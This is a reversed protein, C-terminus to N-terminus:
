NKPLITELRKICDDLAPLADCPQGQTIDYACANLQEWIIQLSQEIEISM